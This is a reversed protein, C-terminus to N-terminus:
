LPMLFVAWKQSHRWCWWFLKKTYISFIFFDSLKLRTGKSRAAMLQPIAEPCWAANWRTVLCLTRDYSIKYLSFNNGINTFPVSLLSSCVIYFTWLLLLDQKEKQHHHHDKCFRDWWKWRLDRIFIWSLESCPHFSTKKRRTGLSELPSSYHKQELLSSHMDDRMYETRKNRCWVSLAFLLSLPLFVLIFPKSVTTM